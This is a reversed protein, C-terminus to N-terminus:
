QGANNASATVNYINGAYLRRDDDPLYDLEIGNVKLIFEDLDWSGTAGFIGMAFTATGSADPTVSRVIDFFEGYVNTIEVEAAVGATLGTVTFNLIANQPKLEFGTGSSYEATELSLQEVAAAKTLAFSNKYYVAVYDDYGEHKKYTLYEYSESGVPVLMAETESATFLNDATGSYANELTITGSFVGPSVMELMGAFYGAGGESEDYGSVFLRDGASFALKCTTENFTTRTVFALDQRTANVTVRLTYGTEDTNDASEDDSDCAATLLMLPILMVFTLVRFIGQTVKMIRPSDFSLM